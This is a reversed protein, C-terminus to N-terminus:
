RFWHQFITLQVRLFLSRHVKLRLEYMKMWYFASLIHDAFYRGNKRPRLTILLLVFYQRSFQKRHNGTEEYISNHPQWCWWSHCWMIVDVFPFMKRTVPGKHPSNVPWRHIGRVFALSASSQHMRQDAGSYVTSYVITLSTIQSVMASMIVGSCDPCAGDWYSYRFWRPSHQSPGGNKGQYIFMSSNRNTKNYYYLRTKTSKFSKHVWMMCTLGDWGSCFPRWKVSSM